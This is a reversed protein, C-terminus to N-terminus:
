DNMLVSGMVAKQLSFGSEAEVKWVTLPADESVRVGGGFVAKVSIIEPNGRFFFFCFGAKYNLVVAM